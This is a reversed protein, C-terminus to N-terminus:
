VITEFTQKEKDYQFVQGKEISYYWGIIDVENNQYKEKIYPYSLLHNMQEIVNLLETKWTKETADEINEALIKERVSAGLEDVWKKTHPVKHAKEEGMFLANCGGCNSHGCVVINKVQLVKVAYEISAAAALFEEAREYPPVMNAINRIMFLDGPLTQTITSPVVRSDSCAIFLTQPHQKAALETFLEKKQPYEDQTFKKVGELLEQM